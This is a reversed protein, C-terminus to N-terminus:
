FRLHCPFCLMFKSTRRFTEGCSVAIPIWICSFSLDCSVYFYGFCRTYRFNCCRAAFTAEGVLLDWGGVGCVVCRMSGCHLGLPAFSTWLLVPAFSSFFYMVQTPPHPFVFYDAGCVQTLIDCMSPIMLHMAECSVM